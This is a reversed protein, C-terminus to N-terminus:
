LSGDLPNVASGNSSLELIYSPCDFTPREPPNMTSGGSLDVQKSQAPERCARVLPSSPLGCPPNVASGGYDPRAVPYEAFGTAIPPNVM